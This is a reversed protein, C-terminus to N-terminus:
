PPAALDARGTLLLWTLGGTIIALSAPQWGTAAVAVASVAVAGAVRLALLLPRGRRARDWFVVLGPVLVNLRLWPARRAPRAYGVVAQLDALAEGRGSPTRLLTYAAAAAAFTAPDGGDARDPHTAAAVRRWAARIDDDSLGASAELGLTRFPDRRPSRDTM